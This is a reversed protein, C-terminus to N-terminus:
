RANWPPMPYKPQTVFGKAGYIEVLADGQVQIVVQPLDIQGHESFAIPGYLSDFRVKALADRVKQPDISGAVEMAQALAEV